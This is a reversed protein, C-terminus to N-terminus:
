SDGLSAEFFSVEGALTLDLCSGSDGFVIEVWGVRGLGVQSSTWLSEAMMRERSLKLRASATHPTRAGALLEEGM